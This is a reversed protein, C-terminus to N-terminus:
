EKVMDMEVRRRSAGLRKADPKALGIATSCVLVVSARVQSPLIAPEVNLKLVEEPDYSIKHPV